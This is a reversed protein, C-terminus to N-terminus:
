QKQCRELGARAEALVADVAGLDICQQYTLRARERDQPTNRQELCRALICAFHTSEPNAHAEAQIEEFLAPDEEGREVKALRAVFRAYADITVSPTIERCMRDAISFLADVDGDSAIRAYVLERLELATPEELLRKVIAEVDRPRRDVLDFIEVSGLDHFRQRIAQMSTSVLVHCGKCAEIEESLYWRGGAREIQSRVYKLPVIGLASASDTTVAFLLSDHVSPSAGPDIWEGGQALLQETLLIAMLEATSDDCRNAIRPARIWRDIADLSQPIVRDFKARAIETTRAILRDRTPRDSLATRLSDTGFEQLLALAIESMQEPSIMANRTAFSPLKSRAVRYIHQAARPSGIAFPVSYVLHREDIAIGRLGDGLLLPETRGDVLVRYIGFCGGEPEGTVLWGDVAPALEAGNEFRPLPHADGSELDISLPEFAATTETFPSNSFDIRLFRRQSDLSADSLARAPLRTIAKSKKTRPDFESVAIPLMHDQRFGAIAKGTSEPETSVVVLSRPRDLVVIANQAIGLPDSGSQIFQFGSELRTFTQGNWEGSARSRIESGRHIQRVSELSADLRWVENPTSILAGGSTPGDIDSIEEFLSGIPESAELLERWAANPPPLCAAPLPSVFPVDLKKTDIRISDRLRTRFRDLAGVPGAYVMRVDLYLGPELEVVLVDVLNMTNPQVQTQFLAPRGAISLETPQPDDSEFPITGAANRSSVLADPLTNTATNTLVFVYFDQAPSQLTVIAANDMSVRQLLFPDHDLSIQHDRIQLEQRVPTRDANSGVLKPPFTIRDRALDANARISVASAEPGTSIVLFGTGEHTLVTHVVRLAVNGVMARLERRSWAREESEHYEFDNVIEPVTATEMGAMSADLLRRHVVDGDLISDDCQIVLFSQSKFLTGTVRSFQDATPINPLKSRKWGAPLRLTAGRKGIDFITGDRDQSHAISGLIVSFLFVYRALRSM